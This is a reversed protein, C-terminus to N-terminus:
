YVYNRFEKPLYQRQLEDVVKDCWVILGMGRWKGEMAPVSVRIMIEWDPFDVLLAQLSKVTEPRFLNLNQFELQHAYWGWNEDLLWYDGKGFPDKQGFRDLTATIKDHLRQWDMEQEATTRDM